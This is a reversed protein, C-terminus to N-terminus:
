FLCQDAMLLRQGSIFYRKIVLLVFKFFLDGFQRRRCIHLLLTAACSVACVSVATSLRILEVKFAKSKPYHICSMKKYNALAIFCFLVSM